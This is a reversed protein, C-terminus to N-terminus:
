VHARGIELRLERLIEGLDRPGGAGLETAADAATYAAAPRGGREHGDPLIVGSGNRLVLIQTVAAGRGLLAAAIASGSVVSVEAEASRGGYLVAIPPITSANM